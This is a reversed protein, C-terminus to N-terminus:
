DEDKKPPVIVGEEVRNGLHTVGDQNDPEADTRIAWSKPMGTPDDYPKQLVKEGERATKNWDHTSARDDQEPYFEANDNRWVGRTGAYFGKM